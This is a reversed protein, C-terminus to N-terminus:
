LSYVSIRMRTEPNKWFTSKTRVFIKCSSMQHLSRMAQWIEQPFADHNIKIGMEIARLSCSLIVADFKESDGNVDIVKIPGKGDYSTKIEKVGPRCGNGNVEKVSKAGLYTLITKFLRGIPSNRFQTWFQETIAETGGVVLEQEDEWECVIIRLIEIFSVQFLSDFGGSGIGM